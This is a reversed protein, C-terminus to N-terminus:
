LADVSRLGLPELDLASGANPRREFGGDVDRNRRSCGDHSDSKAGRSRASQEGKGAAGADCAFARCIADDLDDPGFARAEVEAGTEHERANVAQPDALRDYASHRTGFGVAATESSSGFRRDREDERYRIVAPWRAEEIVGRK